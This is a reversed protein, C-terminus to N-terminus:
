RSCDAAYAQRAADRWDRMWTEFEEFTRLASIEAAAAAAPDDGISELRAVFLRWMESRREGYALFFRRGKGDPRINELARAIQAGGLTSGETVYM